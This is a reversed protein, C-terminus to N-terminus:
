IQMQVRAKCDEPLDVSWIGRGHLARQFAGDSGPLEQRDEHQVGNQSINDPKERATMSKAQQELTRSAQGIQIKARHEPPPMPRGRPEAFSTKQMEYGEQEPNMPFRSGVEWDDIGSALPEQLDQGPQLSSSLTALSKAEAPEPPELTEQCEQPESAKPRSPSGKVETRSLGRTHSANPSNDKVHALERHEGKNQMHAEGAEFDNCSPGQQSHSASDLKEQFQRQLQYFRQQLKLFEEEQEKEWLQKRRQQEKQWQDELEEQRKKLLQQQQTEWEYRKQVESEFQVKMGAQLEAQERAFHQIRERQQEQQQQARQRETDLEQWQKALEEHARELKEVIHLQQVEFEEGKYLLEEVSAAPVLPVNPKGDQQPEGERSGVDNSSVNRGEKAAGKEAARLDVVPLFSGHSSTAGEEQHDALNKQMVQKLSGQRVLFGDLSQLSPCVSTLRSFYRSIAGGIASDDQKEMLDSSRDCAFSPFSERAEWTWVPVGDALPYFALSMPNNRLDLHELALRGAMDMTKAIDE